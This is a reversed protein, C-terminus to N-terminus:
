NSSLVELNTRKWDIPEPSQVLFAFAIEKNNEIRKGIRTIKLEKPNQTVIYGLAYEALLDFSKTEDVDFTSSTNLEVANGIISAIEASETPDSAPDAKFVFPCILFTM